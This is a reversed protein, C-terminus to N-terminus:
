KYMVYEWQEQTLDNPLDTPIMFGHKKYFNYAWPANRLTKLYISPYFNIENLLRKGIGLKQYSRLVYMAHIFVYDHCEEFSMFGILEDNDFAGYIIDRNIIEDFHDILGPSRFNEDFILNADDYIKLLEEAKPSELKIVRIM